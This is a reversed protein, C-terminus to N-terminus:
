PQGSFKENANVIYSVPNNRMVDRLAFRQRRVGLAIRGLQISVPVVASAIAALPEHCLAALGSTVLGGQVVKSDLLATVIGSKTEFGWKRVADDYDSIRTLIDDKIFDESKGAYNEFAFLRLRRLGNRAAPDKRFELLPEWSVNETDVLKLSAFSIAVDSHETSDPRVMGPLVVVPVSELKFDSIVKGIMWQAVYDAIEIEDKTSQHIKVFMDQMAINAKNLRERFWENKVLYPPLMESVLAKPPLFTELKFEEAPM